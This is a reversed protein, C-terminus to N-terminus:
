EIGDIFDEIVKSCEAARDMYIAHTGYLSVLQCNGLKEEFPNWYDQKDEPKEDFYYQADIFLKPIDNPELSDLVTKANQYIMEAESITAHASTTKSFIYINMDLEKKSMNDALKGYIQKMVFPEFGIKESINLTHWQRKIDRGEEEDVRTCLTGDMIIVGEVEEPYKNQWYSTYLGSISHGLLIYPGEERINKLVTRYDEVVREVSRETKTDDSFGYGARDIFILENEEEINKTMNRWSFNMTSDNLGSCCVIKHKGNVNGVKLANLKYDGASVLNCYGNKELQSMIDNVKVRYHITFLVIKWTFKTFVVKNRKISEKVDNM